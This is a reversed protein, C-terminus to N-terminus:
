FFVWAILDISSVSTSRASMYFNKKCVCVCWIIEICFPESITNLKANVLFSQIRKKRIPPEPRYHIDCSSSNSIDSTSTSMKNM